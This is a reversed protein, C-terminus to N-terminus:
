AAQFAGEFILEPGDADLTVNGLKVALDSKVVLLKTGEYELAEDGPQEVDIALGLEGEEPSTLRLCAYYNDVKDQLLTKLVKKAKETVVIMKEERGNWRERGLAIIDRLVGSSLEM